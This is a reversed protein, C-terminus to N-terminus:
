SPSQIYMCGGAGSRINWSGTKVLAKQILNNKHVSLLMNHKKTHHSRYMYMINTYYHSRKTTSAHRLSVGGEESAVGRRMLLFLSRKSSFMLLFGDVASLSPVVIDPPSFIMLFFTLTPKPIATKYFGGHYKDVRAM